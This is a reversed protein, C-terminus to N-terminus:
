ELPPLELTRCSAVMIQAAAKSFGRSDAGTAAGSVLGGASGCAFRQRRTEDWEPVLERVVVFSYAGEPSRFVVLDPESLVRSVGPPVGLESLAPAGPVVEVAFDPGREVRFGLPTREARAGSPARMRESGEGRLQLVEFGGPVAFSFSEAPLVSAKDVQVEEQRRCAGLLVGCGLVWWPLGARCRDLVRGLLMMPTALAPPPWLAM